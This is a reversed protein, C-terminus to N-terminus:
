VFIARVRMRCKGLVTWSMISTLISAKKPVQKLKKTIEWVAKVDEKKPRKMEGKYLCLWSPRSIESSHFTFHTLLSPPRGKYIPFELTGIHGTGESRALAAWDSDERWGMFFKDGDGVMPPKLTVDQVKWEKCARVLSFFTDQHDLVCSCFLTASQVKLKDLGEEQEGVLKAILKATENFGIPVIHEFTKM